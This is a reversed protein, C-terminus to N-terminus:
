LLLAALLLQQSHSLESPDLLGLDFPLGLDRDFRQVNLNVSVLERDSPTDHDAVQAIRWNTEIKVSHTLSGINWGVPPNIRTLNDLHQSVRLFWDVVFSFPLIQWFAKAPNNLGLAGAVERIWGIIGDLFDLTQTIWVTARFTANYSTLIFRSGCPWDFVPAYMNYHEYGHPLHRIDHRVFGLRTPIGYTKKLYELRNRCTDFLQSCTDLDALLNDWGFEKTLYGGSITSVISDKVAPLLSRLQTFGQVFESTSLEQPFVDSFYNFAQESLDSITSGPVLFDDTWMGSDLYSARKYGYTIVPMFVLPDGLFEYSIGSGELSTFNRAFPLVGLKASV